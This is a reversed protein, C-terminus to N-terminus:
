AKPPKPLPIPSQPDRLDDRLSWRLRASPLSIGSVCNGDARAPQHHQCHGCHHLGDGADSDPTPTSEDFFTLTHDAQAHATVAVASVIPVLLLVLALVRAIM